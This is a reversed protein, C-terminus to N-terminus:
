KTGDLAKGNTKAAEVDLQEATPPTLTIDIDHQILQGLSDLVGDPHIVARFGLAVTGGEQTDFIMKDITVDSLKIDQDGTIGRHIVVTYGPFKGDYSQPGLKPFRLVRLPVSGVAAGDFLDKDDKKAPARYLSALLGPETKDLVENSFNITIKLDAALVTQDGHKESRINVNGLFGRLKSGDLMQM